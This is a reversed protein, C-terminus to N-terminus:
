TCVTNFYMTFHRHRLDIGNTDPLPLRVIHLLLVVIQLGACLGLIGFFPVGLTFPRQVKHPDVFSCM